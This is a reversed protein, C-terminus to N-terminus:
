PWDRKANANRYLSQKWHRCNQCTPGAARDRVTNRYERANLRRLVTEGGSHSQQAHYDAIRQTLWEIVKRQEELPPQAAEAPPMADLNLQDLIDQLEVLSNSDSITGSLQDLRRDGAPEDAGHCDVCHSKLFPAVVQTFSGENAAVATSLCLCGLGTSVLLRGFMPFRIM